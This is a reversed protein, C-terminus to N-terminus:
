IWDAWIASEERCPRDTEVVPCRHSPQWQALGSGLETGTVQPVYSMVLPEVVDVRLVLAESSRVVAEGHSLGLLIPSHLLTLTLASSGATWSRLGCTYSRLSVAGVKASFTSGM